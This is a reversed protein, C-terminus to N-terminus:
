SDGALLDLAFMQEVIEAGWQHVPHEERLTFGQREYLTRAAELGRFTWLFVRPYGVRKCFDVANAVLVGGVGQGHLRPDLIFWRLRAGQTSALGGDIVISGAFREDVVAVWLGDKGQRFRAMFESLERGVQTEFSIDFGWVDHYYVAHLETIKGVVGPYYGTVRLRDRATNGM